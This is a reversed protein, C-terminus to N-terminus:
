WGQQSSLRFRGFDDKLRLFFWRHRRPQSCKKAEKRGGKKALWPTKGRQRRIFGGHTEFQQTVSKGGEGRYNYLGGGRGSPTGIGAEKKGHITMLWCGPLMVPPGGAALGAHNLWGGCAMADLWGGEQTVQRAIRTLGQSPKAQQWSRLPFSSPLGQLQFSLPVTLPSPSPDERRSEEKEKPQWSSALPAPHSPAHPIVDRIAGM